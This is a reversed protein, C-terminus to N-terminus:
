GYPSEVTISVKAEIQGGTILHANGGVIDSVGFRHFEYEVDAARDRSPAWSYIYVEHRRALRRLAELHEGRIHSTESRARNEFQLTNRWDVAVRLRPREPPHVISIIERIHPPVSAKPPPKSITVGVPPQEISSSGVEEQAAWDPSFNEDEEVEM